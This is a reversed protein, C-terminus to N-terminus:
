VSEAAEAREDYGHGERDNEQQDEVHDSLRKRGSPAAGGVIRGPAGRQAEFRYGVRAPDKEDAGSGRPLQPPELRLPREGQAQGDSAPQGCM